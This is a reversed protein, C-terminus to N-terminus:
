GVTVRGLWQQATQCHKGTVPKRILARAIALRQKQGGSLQTGAEGVQCALAVLSPALIFSITVIVHLWSVLWAKTQYGMPFSMIFDHASAECWSLLPDLDVHIYVTYMM